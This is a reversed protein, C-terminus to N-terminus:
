AAVKKATALIRYVSRASIKMPKGRPGKRISLRAAIEEAKVGSRALELVEDARGMATKQRGLYKGEGRAKAIGERQRELMIQREFQAISALLNFTLEEAASRNSLHPDVILISVGKKKLRQAIEVIGAVSRALRDLKTCIVIDGERAFEIMAELQPRHADVSSLQEQFIKECGEAALDRIQAKFGADQEITSTRAYGIKM